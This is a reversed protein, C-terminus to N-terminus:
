RAPPAAAAGTRRRRLPEAADPRKAAIAYLEAPSVGVDRAIRGLEGGCGELEDLGERAARWNRWWATMANWPNAAWSTMAAEKDPGAHARRGYAAKIQIL